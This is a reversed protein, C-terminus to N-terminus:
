YLWEMWRAHGSCKALLQERKVGQEYSTLWLMPFEGALWVIAIIYLDRRTAEEAFLAELKQRAEPAFQNIVFTHYLCLTTDMPVAAMVSPLLTLADGALIQPTDQQAAALAKNLLQIRKEHEPWILARLWLTAEANHVDIPHLDVGIRSAVLPLVVPLAPHKEGRLNCLLQVPSHIDGCLRGEGYDYGYRDWLLNLGASAGIEVLSMPRRGTHSAVLEFAPLLCACRRVENTQVLHTGILAQIEDWHEFCFTRFHPYADTEKSPSPTISRYFASLPLPVDKPGQLLLFQVAGFLLNPVPQGKQAHAALELIEPDRAIHLSLQEYLPSANQCEYKAFWEFRKSLEQLRQIKNMGNM